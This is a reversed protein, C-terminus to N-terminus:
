SRGVTDNIARQLSEGLGKQRIQEVDYRCAFLAGVVQADWQTGSGKRLIEDIAM